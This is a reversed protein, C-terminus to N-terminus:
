RPQSIVSVSNTAHNGVYVKGTQPSVAVSQSNGVPITGTVTDTRGNIVSITGDEDSGYDPVYIEGTRPSVAVGIPAGDIPITQVAAPPRAPSQTAAGARREREAGLRPRDDGDRPGRADALGRQQARQEPELVGGSALDEVAPLLEAIRRRTRDRAGERPHRLVRREEGVRQGLVDAEARVVRIRAGREVGDAATSKGSLELARKEAGSAPCHRSALPLPDGQRPGDRRLLRHEQEVLGRAAEVRVRLAPHELGDRAELALPGHEHHRM